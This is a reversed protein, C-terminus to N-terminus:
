RNLLEHLLTVAGSVALWVIIGDVINSSIIVAVPASYWVSQCLICRSGEAQWSDYGWKRHVIERIRFFVNVPGNELTTLHALRYVALVSLIFVWIDPM